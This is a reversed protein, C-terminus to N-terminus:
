FDIAVRGTLTNDVNHQGLSGSYLM